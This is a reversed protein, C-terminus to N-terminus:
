SNGRGRQAMGKLIQGVPNQNVKKYPSGGLLLREVKLEGLREKEIEYPNESLIVMDAVKEAELSGRDNEDFCGYYGNYTCM